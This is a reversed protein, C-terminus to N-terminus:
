VRRYRVRCPQSPAAILNTYDVSYNPDVLEFDFNRLLHSWLARLQLQAFVMGMCRHRGAGFAIHGYPSKRDEERDPGFRAPDFSHPNAFIEPIRQGVAPSAMLMAGAPIHFDRFSIDKLARRAVLIIPPYLRLAEKITWELKSMKRLEDLTLQERDGVVERQEQKLERMVQPHRALLLAIWSFTVGSTHHGAFMITLILGTIEDETLSRGDKYKSEMLTQLVDECREGSARREAVIKTILAVMKARARDRRRMAPLPLHPAFFAVLNMGGELDTYLEAFEESLNDRFRPGLLSRSSTYLTVENGVELMNAVGEDGWSGFMREAEEVFGECYTRLRSERLAAHFFGLQERMIHPEADYAIGKGFVPITLKYVERQSVEEDRLRFFKEQAEHGTMVVTYNGAPMRMAFVDGHEARGRRIVRTPDGRMELAHGLGPVGGSLMPPLQKGAPAQVTSRRFPLKFKSSEASLTATPM